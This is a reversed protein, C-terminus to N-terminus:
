LTALMQRLQWYLKALPLGMINYYDGEIKKVFVSAFDQIAYAGAKDYVNNNKIYFDIVEEDLKYFTVKSVEYFSSFKKPSRLTIGTYVCHTKNSLTQLMNFAEDYDHPKGFIKGDLTVITDATILLEGHSIEINKSKKYSIEQVIECPSESKYTEDTNATRISFNKTILKLLEQRRPSSSGLVLEVKSDIM